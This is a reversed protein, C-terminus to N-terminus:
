WRIQSGINTTIIDQDAMKLAITYFPYNRGYHEDMNKM